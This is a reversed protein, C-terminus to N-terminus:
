CYCFNINTQMILCIFYVVYMIHDRKVDYSVSILPVFILSLFLNSPCYDLSLRHDGQQM